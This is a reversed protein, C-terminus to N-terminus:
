RILETMTEAARQIREVLYIYSASDMGGDSAMGKLYGLCNYLGDKIGLLEEYRERDNLM